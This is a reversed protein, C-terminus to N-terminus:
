QVHVWKKKINENIKNLDSMWPLYIFVPYILSVATIALLLMTNVHSSLYWGAAIRWICELAFISIVEIKVVRYYRELFIIVTIDLEHDDLSMNRIINNGLNLERSRIVNERLRDSYARLIRM